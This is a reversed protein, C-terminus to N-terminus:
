FELFMQIEIFIYNFDVRIKLSLMGTMCRLEQGASAARNSPSTMAPGTKDRNPSSGSADHPDHSLGPLSM